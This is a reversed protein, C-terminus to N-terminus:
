EYFGGTVGTLKPAPAGLVIEQFPKGVKIWEIRGKVGNIFEQVPMVHNGGINFTCARNSSRFQEISPLDADYLNTCKWDYIAFYAGSDEDFFMWEGSVKYEDGESPEGFALVLDAYTVVIEGMRSSDMGDPYETLRKFM